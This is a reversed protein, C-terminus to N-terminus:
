NNACNKTTSTGLVGPSSGQADRYNLTRCQQGPSFMVRATNIPLISENSMTVGSVSMSGVGVLKILGNAAAHKMLKSDETSSNGRGLVDGADVTVTCTTYRYWIGPLEETLTNVFDPQCVTKVYSNIHDAGLPNAALTGCQITHTGSSSKTIDWEDGISASTNLEDIINNVQAEFRQFQFTSCSQNVVKITFSKFPPVYCERSENMSNNCNLTQRQQDPSSDYMVGTLRRISGSTSMQTVLPQESTGLNVGSDPGADAPFLDPNAPGCAILALFPIISLSKM